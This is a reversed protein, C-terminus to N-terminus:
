RNASLSQIRRCMVDSIPYTLSFTTNETPGYGNILKLEPYQKRIREIHHESLKEGGVLVTRLGAFVEPNNDALQNFWGSTFWMINVRFNGIIVKLSEANLLEDMGCLILRGGNLLMGWYEFTTADFSPSGTVLLCDDPCLSVYDVGKVLSVVNHHEIMVGKPRGTSGSTYIVYALQEPSISTQPKSRKEKQILEWDRDLEIVSISSYGNLKGSSTKNSLVVSASTDELMYGIRDAPYDPDIPVYAGGAKLIGLIGVMM